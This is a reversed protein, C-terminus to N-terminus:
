CVFVFDTQSNAEEKEGNIYKCTIDTTPQTKTHKNTQKNQEAQLRLSGITVDPWIFTDPIRISYTLAFRM